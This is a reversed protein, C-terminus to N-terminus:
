NMNGNLPYADINDNVGDEDTDELYPDTGNNRETFDNWGDQDYDGTNPNSYIHRSQNGTVSIEWGTRIEDIDTIGDGDGDPSNRDTGSMYEERDLMGDLDTDKIFSLSTFSGSKLIVDDFDVLQDDLSNSSSLTAWIGHQYDLAHTQRIGILRRSQGIISNSTDDYIDVITTEYEMDIDPDSKLIDMAERLTIGIQQGFKDRKFTTRISYDEVIGNGYDVILTATRESIDTSVGTYDLLEGEVSVWDMNFYAVDTVLSAPDQLLDRTTNLDLDGEVTLVGTESEAGIALDTLPDLTTIPSFGVGQRKLISIQLNRITAGIESENIIKFGLIIKGGELNVTSDQQYSNLTDRGSQVDSVSNKDISSTTERMSKDRRSYGLDVKGTLSTAQGEKAVKATLGVKGGIQTLNQNTTTDTKSISDTQIDLSSLTTAQTQQSGSTETYILTIYPRGVIEVRFVPLEAILPNHGGGTIEDLDSKGDGDSDSLAPSTKFLTVEGNDLLEVVPTVQENSLADDDTDVDNPNAGYLIEENDLLGDGDTDDTTPNSKLRFEDLDSLGDGDTDPKTPSSSVKIHHLEKFSDEIIVTWGKREIVDYLGDGDTDSTSTICSNINLTLFGIVIILIIFRQKINM